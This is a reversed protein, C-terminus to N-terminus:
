KKFNQLNKHLIKLKEISNGVEELSEIIINEKKILEKDLSNKNDMAAILELLNEINKDIQELSCITNQMSVTSIDVSKNIKQILFNFDNSAKLVDDINPNLEITDIGKVTSKQIIRKSTSLFKQIFLILDKLQTFLYILLLLLIIFLSIQIFKNEKEKYDIYSKHIKILKDFEMVLILNNKYIDNVIKELIISSYPTIIKNKDRFKQVLLYFKNWLLVIRERERKLENMSINNLIDDKHSMNEMFSKISSDLQEVSANKNKYIYFINKSIEQTFSKQENITKLLELNSRNQTAIHKSYLALSILILLILLAVFKIKNM